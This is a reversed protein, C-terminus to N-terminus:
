IRLDFTGDTAKFERTEGNNLVKTGEFSFNGSVVDGRYIGDSSGIRRFSLEGAEVEITRYEARYTLNGSTGSDYPTLSYVYELSIEPNTIPTELSM